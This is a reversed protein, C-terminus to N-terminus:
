FNTPLPTILQAGTAESYIGDYSWYSRPVITISGENEPGSEIEYLKVLNGCFTLTVASERTDSSGFYAPNTDLATAWNVNFEPFFRSDTFTAGSLNMRFGIPYSEPAAFAFYQTAQNCKTAIERENAPGTVTIVNNTDSNDFRSFQAVTASPINSLNITGSIELSRINAYQQFFQAFTLRLPHTDPTKGLENTVDPIYNYRLPFYDLPSASFGGIAFGVRSM